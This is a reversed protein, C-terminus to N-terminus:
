PNSILTEAKFVHGINMKQLKKALQMHHQENTYFIVASGSGSLQRKWFYPKLLETKVFLEQLKEEQLQAPEELRNFFYKSISEYNDIEPELLNKVIIDSFKYKELSMNTQRYIDATSCKADPIVIVLSLAHNISFPKVIEGRGQCRAAPLHMFFPVDSGIQAGIKALEDANLESSSLSALAKIVSAANSSGGGLGSEWPIRKLLSIKVDGIINQNELFLKAAKVVLNNENCPFGSSDLNEFTCDLMFTSEGSDKQQFGVEIEDFMNIALMVTDIDHYGDKRKCLVELFVNIKAPSLIKHTKM